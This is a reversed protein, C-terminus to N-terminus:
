AAEDVTRDAGTSLAAPNDVEGNGQALRGGKVNGRGAASKPFGGAVTEGVRRHEVVFVHDRDAVDGDGLGVRIDDPNAGAFRVAATAVGAHRVPAIADVLRGVGAGGPFVHSQIIGEVDAADDDMRSIGVGDVDGGETPKIGCAGLATQVFCGVASRRPGFRESHLDALAVDADGLDDEIRGIGVGEVRGAPVSGSRGPEVGLASRAAGDIFCGVGALRPRLEAVAQWRAVQASDRKGDGGGIGLSDVGGDGVSRVAASPEVVGVDASDVAGVVGAGAERLDAGFAFDEAASGIVTLESDVRVIRIANMQEATAHLFRGVAALRPVEAQQIFAIVVGEPDIWAVRVMHQQAVVMPQRDGVVVAAGPVMGVFQRERLEVGDADVHVAGVVDIAARLVVSRPLSGARFLAGRGDTKFVPFFDAAAIPKIIQDVRGVATPEVVLRLPSFEVSAVLGAGAAAADPMAAVFERGVQGAVAGMAEVPNGRQQNRRVVAARDVM